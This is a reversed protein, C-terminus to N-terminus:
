LQWAGVVHRISIKGDAEGKPAIDWTWKEFPRHHDLYEHTRLVAESKVLKDEYYYSHEIDSILLLQTKQSILWSLHAAMINSDFNEHLLSKNKKAYDLLTMPLQSLLNLSIILDPRVDPSWRFAIRGSYPEGRKVQSYFPEAIGTIDKDVFTIDPYKQRIKPLHVIDVCTINHGQALLAEVPVDHLGGSGLIMINSKPELLTAQELIIEKCKELHPQWTSACRKYRAEIAIAERVYGMDKVYKPAPTLFHQLAEIIM